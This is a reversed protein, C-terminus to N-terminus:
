LIAAMYEMDSNSESVGLIRTYVNWSDWNIRISTLSIDLLIAQPYCGDQIELHRRCNESM